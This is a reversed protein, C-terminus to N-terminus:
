EKHYIVQYLMLGKAPAAPLSQQPNTEALAKVLIGPSLHPKCAVHLSAGVIRRIMHRLFKPGHVSIRYAQYEPTWSVSIHHITRLTNEHEDGTCFSRFNHTGVFVQLCDYLKGLDVPRYIHWGYHQVSPLPRSTFFHYHYVKEVIQAHPNFDPTVIDLSRISIALPLRANWATLMIQPDVSLDTEFVAVQGLAHVGADTRSVGYMKLPRHFVESFTHQLQQAVSLRTPQVQWGAYDAGDYAVIIKYRQMM